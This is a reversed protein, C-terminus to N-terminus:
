PPTQSIPPLDSKLDRGVAPMSTIAPERNILPNGKDDNSYGHFIGSAVLLSNNHLYLTPSGSNGPTFTIPGNVDMDGGKLRAKMGYIKHSAPGLSQVPHGVGLSIANDIVSINGFNSLIYPVPESKVPEIRIVAYDYSWNSAVVTGTVRMAFDSGDENEGFSFNASKGIINIAENPKCVKHGNITQKECVVHHNTMMHCPSFMFGTGWARNEEAKASQEFGPQGEKVKAATVKGIAHLAFMPDKVPIQHRHLKQRMDFRANGGDSLDYLEECLPNFKTLDFVDERDCVGKPLFAADEPTRHRHSHRSNPNLDQITYGTPTKAERDAGFRVLLQTIQENAMLASWHIPKWGNRDSVNPDAKKELLIEVMQQLNEQTALHLPTKGNRDAQNPNAGKELLLSMIKPRGTRAAVHLPTRGDKDAQNLNAGKDFLLSAVDPKDFKDFSVATKLATDGNLDSANVDAGNELLLKTDEYSSVAGHLPTRGLQNMANVKAGKELLLAVVEPRGVGVARALPAGGYRGAKNVNAGKELLLKTIEYSKVGQQLLTDGNSSEWHPNAGSKLLLIAIDYHGNWLASYVLAGDKASVGKKLLAEVQIRDGREIAKTLAETTQNMAMLVPAVGVVFLMTM